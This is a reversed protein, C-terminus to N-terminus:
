VKFRNENHIKLKKLKRKWKHKWARFIAEIKDIESLFPFTEIFYLYTYGLKLLLALFNIRKWAILKPKLKRKEFYKAGWVILVAFTFKWVTSWRLCEPESRQCFFIVVWKWLGGCRRIFELKQIRHVYSLFLSHSISPCLHHENLTTSSFKIVYIHVIFNWAHTASFIDSLLVLHCRLRILFLFFFIYFVWVFSHWRRVVKLHEM